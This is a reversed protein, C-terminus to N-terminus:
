WMHIFDHLYIIGIVFHERVPGNEESYKVWFNVTAAYKALFTKSTGFSGNKIVVRKALLYIVYVEVSTNILSKKM